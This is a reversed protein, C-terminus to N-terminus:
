EIRYRKRKRWLTTANIGLRAAAEELTAADALVQQIHRREIEDLSLSPDAAPATFPPAPAALRDPLDEIRITDGRSLVVARELANLLERVNGPWLYTVLAARAEPCLQLAGRRHRVCLTALVHDILAPLDERRERLPPLRIGVVNLRFFLDERFRGSRVDADLDRNTAAIIRADVEITESSGIREFRHEELFRLLKAQLEPPLEGVEDLFVTGGAAAELRGPKDKWASTFAGKMHGFLESELLHEALTTCSITVFPAAARPSWAHIASALVNKGTGSEGTLMVTVASAAVQRATALVRQMAPSASELLAPQEIVHRLAQNERRLAQVEIVRTLLLGVQDLSFPKVLYDYAGARMAEVAQPVTAYATMLVVVVDPRRGRIERLLALGDMGAMRVDSLVVDIAGRDLASLATTADAAIEAAHGLSRVYTALHTRINKEDDVILINAM